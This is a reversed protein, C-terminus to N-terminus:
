TGGVANRVSEVAQEEEFWALTNWGAAVDSIRKEPYEGAALRSPEDGFWARM